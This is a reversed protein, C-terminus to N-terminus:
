GPLIGDPTKCFVEKIYIFLLYMWLSENWQSNEDSAALLETIKKYDYWDGSTQLHKLTNQIEPLIKKSDRQLRLLWDINQVGYRFWNEYLCPPLIDKCNGRILWRPEGQYAFYKYPLHYCFSVMRSDRTPDRLVIGAALGLKTEMAGIYTYMSLRWLNKQYTQENTPISVLLDCDGRQFRNKMPYDMLIEASLFPNDPMYTFSHNKYIKDAYHYYNWCSKLATSRKEKVYKCYRNLWKLCQLYHRKTYIDYLIDDIYGNSVTSNGCQGTLVIKCGQSNANQYIEFLNPLNVYAKFPIEMISLLQSIEQLCNKGNNHMFHPLINPHMRVLEEVGAQENVIHNKDSDLHDPNEYPIYTYSYLTKGQTQLHDAALAGVTASDLGSSLCIGTNGNTRTADHVCSEYLMRFSKGYEAANHCKYKNESLAPTWYFQETINGESITLFSGPLLQFLNKCPTEGPVINPMLGPAVLFDKLYLENEPINKDYKRIPEILTSFLLETESRYYYLCRASVQDVALYATKTNKEYIALSFLGRIRKLFQIGWKKYSLYLLKGDSTHAAENSHIQLDHILEDRNDILCDTTFCCSDDEIPLVEFNSEQTIHQIGCGFYYNSHSVFNIQDLRCKEIYPQKMIEAKKQNITQQFSIIGWIASM